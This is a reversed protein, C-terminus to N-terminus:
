STRRGQPEGQPEAQPGAAVFLSPSDSPAECTDAPSPQEQGERLMRGTSPGSARWRRWRRRPNAARANCTRQARVPAEMHAGHPQKHRLPALAHGAGGGGQM